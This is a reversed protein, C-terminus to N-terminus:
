LQREVPDKLPPAKLLNVYERKNHDAIDRAKEKWQEQVEAELAQFLEHVVAMRLGANPGDM